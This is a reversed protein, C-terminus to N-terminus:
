TEGLNLEEDELAEARLKTQEVLIDCESCKVLRVFNSDIDAEGTPDHWGQVEEFSHECSMPDTM